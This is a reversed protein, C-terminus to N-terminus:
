HLAVKLVVVTLHQLAALHVKGERGILRLELVHPLYDSGEFLTLISQQLRWCPSALRQRKQAPCKGPKSLVPGLKRRSHLWNRSLKRAYDICAARVRLQTLNLLLKLACSKPGPSTQNSGSIMKANVRRDIVEFTLLEVRCTTAQVSSHVRTNEAFVSLSPHVVRIPVWHVNLVEM